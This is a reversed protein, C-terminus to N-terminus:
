ILRSSHEAAIDSRFSNTSDVYTLSTLIQRCKMARLLNSNSAGWEGMTEICSGPKGCPVNAAVHTYNTAICVFGWKVMQKAINTSYSSVSGGTGHNIMVAPFPGSGAPKYLIGSLDYEVTGKETYTWKAGTASSPDGTIILNGPSPNNDTVPNDTKKCSTFALLFSFVIVATVNKMACCNANHRIFKCFTQLHHANEKRTMFTGNQIINM